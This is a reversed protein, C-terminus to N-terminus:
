PPSPDLPRFLEVETEWVHHLQGDILRRQSAHCAVARRKSPAAAPARLLLVRNRVLVPVSRVLRVATSLASPRGPHGIPWLGAAPYVHYAFVEPTPGRRGGAAVARCTARSLARHDAHLDDPATVFVQAPALEDILAAILTAAEAEHGDLEADPFGFEHRHGAPVGLTDLGRHWEDHRRRAIDGAPPEPDTSFWGIRGDTALAVTVQEGRAVKTALLLGCAIAEDDPHPTLVLASGASLRSTADRGLAVQTAIWLPGISPRRV